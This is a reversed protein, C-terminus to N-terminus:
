STGLFFMTWSPLCRLVDEFYESYLDIRSKNAERKIVSIAEVHSNPIICRIV